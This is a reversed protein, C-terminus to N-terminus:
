YGTNQQLRPNLTLEVNPIPMVEHIGDTFPRGMSRIVEGAVGWRVLDFFRHGELGLEYKREERIAQRVQEQDTSVIPPMDVSPRQRVRNLHVLAETTQGSENLAEAYLLLADSFRMHKYNLGGDFQAGSVMGEVYKVSRYFTASVFTSDMTLKRRPDPKGQANVGWSTWYSHIPNTYGRPNPTGGFSELDNHANGEGTQTGSICQTEFVSELGNDNVAKWNDAYDDFLGYDSSAIMPQGAAVANSWQGAYIYAKMLYAQAAGQTVRGADVVSQQGKTPLNPIAANFDNIVQNLVEEKTNRPIQAESPLYLRNVVPVGGFVKLLQFHYFGRLFTAEAIFQRRRAEDMNAQDIRDLFLNCRYIGFYAERWIVNFLDMSGDQSNTELPVFNRPSSPGSKCLDSCYMGVADVGLGFMRDFQASLPDYAASLGQSAQSENQYFDEVSVGDPPATDLFDKSCSGLILVAIPLLISKRM